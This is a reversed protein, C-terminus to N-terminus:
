PANRKELPTHYQTEQVTKLGKETEVQKRVLQGEQNYQYYLGFHQDDFSTLLRFTYPDYVYTVAQADTPQIRVDDIWVTVTSSTIGYGSYITMTVNDGASMTTIVGSRAEYLTWEGTRAIKNFTMSLTTGTSTKNLQGKVPAAAAGPDKVWVKVSIGKNVLQNDLAFQRAIFACSSSTSGGVCVNYLKFSAAGSHATTKDIRSSASISVDEELKNGSYLNEFSEFQVSTYPANKAVLYPLMGKYGFKASSYIGQIDKDELAEGNPSYKLVTSMRLWKATDNKSEDKWDFMTLGYVGANKYNRETTSQKSGGIVPKNYAFSSEFRWKGKEGKEYSNLTATSSTPYLAADYPWEHDFTAVSSAVVNITNYGPSSNCIKICSVDEPFCTNGPGYYVIKGAITDMEFNGGPASLMQTCGSVGPLNVSVQLQGDVLATTIDVRAESCMGTLPNAISTSFTSGGNNLGDLIGALTIGISKASSSMMQYQTKPNAIGYTTIGGAMVDLQNTRGSRVIEIESVGGTSVNSNGSANFSGSPLLILRNGKLKDVHFFSETTGHKLRLLDGRSFLELIDCINTVGTSSPTILMEYQGSNLELTFTPLAGGGGPIISGEALSRQGMEDYKSAAPFSFSYYMGNHNASQQLTLNHYGDTTRTVVPKGTYPSFAYNETTHWINDQFVEVKKQIAPFHVVKSTVHTRLKSESYSVVPMATIFPIPIAVIGVSADTSVNIDKTVDEVAKHEFVIETERGLNEYQITNIDKMVPIPEGPEFYSYIVQSTRVPQTTGNYDGSYTTSTSPQGNMETIVFRYGQSLWLNTVSYNVYVAPLLMWDQQQEIPTNDVASGIIGYNDYVKNFPYEKTTFFTNVTYGTGTKGSHINKIVVRSYGVGPAPLLSEGIPGEFQEKDRGSIVRQWWKQDSRKGLFGVLANEERIASPENSAVGSSEGDENEYLYESGYLSEDGSTVSPDIGKDYMLIRKVRVGGGKKAHLVPIRFYSYSPDINACISGPSVLSTAKQVLQLVLDKADTSEEIGGVDVDANCGGSKIKGGKETKVYDDCVQAPMEYGNNNELEIYIKGMYTPDTDEVGVHAVSAYGSVYDSNCNGLDAPLGAQLLQYLFKFYIKEDEFRKRIIDALKYKEDLSTVGLETDVDIYFRSGSTTMPYNLLKVMAMARKDQVFLYDDQEYQVHIEGGSPLKIAKLQWAAPDFGPGPTQDLWTKMQMHRMGGARQYNGWADLMFKSYSPNENLAGLPNAYFSSYASPYNADSTGPYNYEFKYPSIRANQVGEYEFWVKKLTLKGTNSDANPLGPCLSNDYAFRVTKVLKYDSSGDVPKAYLEIRELMRLKNSGPYGQSATNNDAADMGDPRDALSGSITSSGNFTKGTESYTTKNTVFIAVHTKTEIKKLYYVEKEGSIVSGMDDTNDTLDVPNYSLGTYPIRWKYWSGGSVKNDNGYVQDYSFKTYGGLDESDPGNINRDVYDPTTIETLLYSTAYPARRLEGVQVDPDSIDKYAIYNSDIATGTVGHLDYQMTLENKSYVPLGYVYRNGTENFTVIEGIGNSVTTRDVQDEIDQSRQYGKYLAGSASVYAMEDNTHFGIYSSSKRDGSIDGPLSSPLEPHFIKSGNNLNDPALRARYAKSHSGFNVQGGMDGNFRFFFSEKQASFSHEPSVNGNYSTGGSEWDRKVKLSHSGLGISFGAGINSGLMFEAGAQSIITNSEVSNPYFTGAKMSHLRFGGALGEGSLSYQDAGSVPISLYRDRKNYMSEKEVTYDMVSTSHANGSYLYGYTDSTIEDENKQTTFNGTIGFQVGVPVPAPEPDVSVNVNVSTGTYPTLHTPASLDSLSYMGYTSAMSGLSTFKSVQKNRKDDKVKASRLAAKSEEQVCEDASQYKRDNKVKKEETKLHSLVAAPNIHMSFSGQGDSVSYGLSALGKVFTLGVGAPFSFGRYNNYRISANANIGLNQSFAEVGIQGGVSVTWNKPVKNYYTVDDGNSDDPLGRKNRTIAGPNLTWGYGVWSAESEPTEGSHYSLSLAYGGGNAGPVNLVPLNYTFDGTFDNVM